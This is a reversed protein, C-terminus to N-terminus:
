SGENVSQQIDSVGVDVLTLSSKLCLGFPNSEKKCFRREAAVDSECLM